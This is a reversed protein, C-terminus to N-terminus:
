LLFTEKIGWEGIKLETQYFFNQFIEVCNQLFTTYIAADRKTVGNTEIDNKQGGKSWQEAPWERLM